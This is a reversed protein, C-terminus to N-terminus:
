VSWRNFYNFFPFLNLFSVLNATYLRLFHWLFPWSELKFFIPWDGGSFNIQWSVYHHVETLQWPCCDNCEKWSSAPTWDATHFSWCDSAIFYHPTSSDKCVLTRLSNIAYTFIFSKCLCILFYSSICFCLRAYRIELILLLEKLVCRWVRVMLHLFTM